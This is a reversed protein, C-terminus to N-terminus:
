TLTDIVTKLAYGLFAGSLIDFCRQNFNRKTRGTIQAFIEDETERVTVHDKNFYVDSENEKFIAYDCRVLMPDDSKKSHVFIFPSQKDTM